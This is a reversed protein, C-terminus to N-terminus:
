GRVVPLFTDGDQDGSFEVGGLRTSLRAPLNKKGM